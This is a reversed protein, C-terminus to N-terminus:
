KIPDYYPDTQVSITTTTLTGILDVCKLEGDERETVRFKVETAPVPMFSKGGDLSIELVKSM